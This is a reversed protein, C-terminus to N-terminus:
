ASGGPARPVAARCGRRLGVAQDDVLLLDHEDRLLDGAIRHTSGVRQALGHALLLELHELGLVGAEALAHRGVSEGLGRHLRQPVGNKREGAVREVLRVRRAVAQHREPRGVELRVERGFVHGAQEGTDAVVLVLGRDVERVAAAEADGHQRGVDVFGLLVEGGDAGVDAEPETRDAIDAGVDDRRDDRRALLFGGVGIEGVIEVLDVRDGAGLLDGLRQDLGAREVRHTMRALAQQQHVRIRDIRHHAGLLRLRDALEVQEAAVVGVLGDRTHEVHLHGVSSHSDM